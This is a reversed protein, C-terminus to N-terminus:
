AGGARSFKVLAATGALLGFVCWGVVSSPKQEPQPEPQAQTASSEKSEVPKEENSAQAADLAQQAEELPVHQALKNQVTVGKRTDTGCECKAYLFQANRGKGQYVSKVTNCARCPLFGVPKNELEEGQRVVNTLQQNNSSKNKWRM